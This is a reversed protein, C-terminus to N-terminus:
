QRGNLSIEADKLMRWPILIRDYNFVNGFDVEMYRMIWTRDDFLFDKVKGKTGEITYVSRGIIDNVARKM